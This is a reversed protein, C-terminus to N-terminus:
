LAQVELVHEGIGTPAGTKDHLYAAASLHDAHPHTDLIWAAHLEDEALHRLLADASETAVSGSKGDYDLIPDIVACAGSDPDAVVYQIACTRLDFFGTVRPERM